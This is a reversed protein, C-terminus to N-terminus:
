EGMGTMGAMGGQVGLGVSPTTAVSTASGSTGMGSVGTSLSNPITTAVQGGQTQQQLVSNAVLAGFTGPVPTM